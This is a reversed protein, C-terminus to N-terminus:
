LMTNNRSLYVVSKDQMPAQPGQQSCGSFPRQARMGMCVGRRKQEFISALGVMGHLLVMLCIHGFERFQVGLWLRYWGQATWQVLGVIKEMAMEFTDKVLFEAL